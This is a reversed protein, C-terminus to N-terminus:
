VATRGIIIWGSKVIFWKKLANEVPLCCFSRTLSSNWRCNSM